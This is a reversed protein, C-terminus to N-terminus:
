IIEFTNKLDKFINEYDLGFESNYYKEDISYIVDEYKENNKLINIDKNIKLSDKIKKFNFASISISNKFIEIELDKKNYYESKLVGIYIEIQPSISRSKWNLNEDEYESGIKLKSNLFINNSFYSILNNANNISNIDLIYETYVQNIINLYLNGNLNKNKYNEIIELTKSFYKNPIWEKIKRDFNGYPAPYLSGDNSPIVLDVNCINLDFRCGRGFRQVLRDIPCIDSIMYDSSINISLEGIQTMIVIGRSTNNEHSNKGLMKLIKNEIIDKSEKTHESHYLIIDTRNSNSKLLNYAYKARKITNCYIIVKDKNASNLILKDYEDDSQIINNINVRDRELDSDDDTMKLNLKLEKNIFEIFCDPLTASMIMVPVNFKILIKLLKIINAQIFEDYFDSEDIVVCSNVINFLRQHHEEKCLTISYLLQDITCVNIISEFTKSYTLENGSYDFRKASHQTYIDDVLTGDNINNTLANSTFQTPMAIILRDANKNLIQNNAWLLCASTKGSGTPARLILIQDTNEKCIKQLKRLTWNPNIKYENWTKLQINNEGNEKASSRRDILQLYHRYFSNKYWFDYKDVNVCDEFQGTITKNIDIFLEELNKYGCEVLLEKFKLSHNDNKLNNFKHLKYDCLNNHHSLTPIILQSQNIFEILLKNFDFKNDKTKNLYLLLSSLEHRFGVNIINNENAAKQWIESTKGYDHFSIIKYLDDIIKDVTLNFYKSYKLFTNKRNQIIETSEILLNETHQYLNIDNSKAKSLKYKDVLNYKNLISDLIKKM